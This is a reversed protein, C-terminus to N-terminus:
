KERSPKWGTRRMKGYVYKDQRKKDKPWKKRAEARLAREMAVPM